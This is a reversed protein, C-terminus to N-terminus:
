LLDAGGSQAKAFSRRLLASWEDNQGKILLFCTLQKSPCNTKIRTNRAIVWYRLIPFNTAVCPTFPSSIRLCSNPFFVESFPNCVIKISSLFFEKRGQNISFVLILFASSTNKFSSPTLVRSVAMLSVCFSTHAM